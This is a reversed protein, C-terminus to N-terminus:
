GRRESRCYGAATGRDSLQVARSATRLSWGGCGGSHHAHVAPQDANRRSGDVLTHPTDPRAPAGDAQAVLAGGNDPVLHVFLSYNDAPTSAAQWYFTLSLSNGPTITTADLDYGILHIADGFSVDTEHQIPQLRYIQMQPGRTDVSIFDRLHLLQALYARGDTTELMAKNVVAYSAGNRSRWLAPSKVTLDDIVIWDFWHQGEIGGWYPNFTKHNEAGVLVTGPTLNADAWNRLAVRTDPLLRSHLLGFDANIQPVFVLLAPILLVLPRLLPAARRRDAGAGAGLDRLRHRDRAACGQHPRQRQGHQLDFRAM